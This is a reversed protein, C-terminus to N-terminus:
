GNVKITHARLFLLADENAREDASRSASLLEKEFDTLTTGEVEVRGLLHDLSVDFINAIQVLVDASPERSGTEYRSYVVSSVGLASAVEAQTMGKRLRIEKINM